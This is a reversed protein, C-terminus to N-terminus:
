PSAAGLARLELLVSSSCLVAAACVWPLPVGVDVLQAGRCPERSAPIAPDGVAVTRPDTRLGEGTAKLVAEKRTWLVARERLDHAAEDPGLAVDEFGAFRTADLHEVDVGVPGDDCVAVVALGHSQSTSVHHTPHDLVPKGHPRECDPCARGIRPLTGLVDRLVDDLLDRPARALAYVVLLM